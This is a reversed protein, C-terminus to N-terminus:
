KGYYIKEGVKKDGSGKRTDDVRKNGGIPSEDRMKNIFKAVPNKINLFKPGIYGDGPKETLTKKQAEVIGQITEADMETMVYNAEEITAVQESSLLYELVIDYPTYNEMAANKDAIAQLRAAKKKNAELSGASSTLGATGGGTGSTVKTRTSTTNGSQTTSSTVKRTPMGSKPVNASETGGTPKAAGMKSALGAGDIKKSASAVPKNGQKAALRAKAMQQAKEKGSLQPKGAAKDEQRKKFMEKARLKAKEKNEARQAGPTGRKVFGVGKDKKIFKDKFGPKPDPKKIEPKQEVSKITSQSTGGSDTSAGANGGGVANPNKARIEATSPFKKVEPKPRPKAGSGRVNTPNGVGGGAGGQPPTAPKFANARNQALQQVSSGRREELNEPKSVKDAYIKAIEQYEKLDRFM